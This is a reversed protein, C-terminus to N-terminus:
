KLLEELKEDLKKLRAKEDEPKVEKKPKETKKVAKKAVEIRDIGTEKIAKKEVEKKELPELPEVTKTKAETTKNLSGKEVEDKAIETKEETATKDAGVMVQKKDKKSKKPAKIEPLIVIISRLIEESLRLNKEIEAVKTSETTFNVLVYVGFGNKAVQYALKRKGWDEQSVIDGNTKKIFGAVKDLVKDSTGELDPHIIYLLEYNKLM